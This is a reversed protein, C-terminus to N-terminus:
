TSLSERLAKAGEMKNNHLYNGAQKEQLEYAQKAHAITIEFQALDERLVAILMLNDTTETVTDLVKQREVQIKELATITDKLESM